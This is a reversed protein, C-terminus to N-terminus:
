GCAYAGRAQDVERQPNLLFTRGRQALVGLNAHFPRLLAPTRRVQETRHMGYNDMILQIELDKPVAADIANYLLRQVLPTITVVGTQTCIAARQRLCVPRRSPQELRREVEQM